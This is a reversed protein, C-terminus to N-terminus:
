NFVDKLICDAELERKWPSGKLVTWILDESADIMRRRDSNIIQSTKMLIQNSSHYKDKSEQSLNVPLTRKSEIIGEATGKKTGRFIGSPGM